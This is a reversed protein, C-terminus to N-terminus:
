LFMEMNCFGCGGHIFKTSRSSTGQGLDGQEFLAVKFGRSTAEIAAGIGTAGGGTIIIDWTKSEDSIRTLM